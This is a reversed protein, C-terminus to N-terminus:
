GNKSYTKFRMYLSVSVQFSAISSHLYGKLVVHVVMIMSRFSVCIHRRFDKDYVWDVNKNGSNM